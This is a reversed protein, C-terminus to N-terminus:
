KNKVEHVLRIIRVIVMITLIALNVLLWGASKYVGSACEGYPLNKLALINLIILVFIM